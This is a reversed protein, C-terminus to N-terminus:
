DIRTIPNGQVAKNWREMLAEDNLEIWARVKRLMRNPLTGELLEGGPIAIVAEEDGFMVHVHPRHHQGEDFYYLYVLIGFRKFLYESINPM